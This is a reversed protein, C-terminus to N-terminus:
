KEEEYGYYIIKSKNFLKLLYDKREKEIEEDTRSLKKLLQIIQERQKKPIDESKHNIGQKDLSIIVYYLYQTFSSITMKPITPYNWPHHYNKPLPAKNIRFVINLSNGFHSFSITTPKEKM